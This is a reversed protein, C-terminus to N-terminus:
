KELPTLMIWGLPAYPQNQQFAVRRTKPFPANRRGLRYTQRIQNYEQDLDETLPNLVTKTEWGGGWGINLLFGGQSEVQELHKELAKCFQELPQLQYEQYFDRESEILTKSRMNCHAAFEHVLHGDNESFGLDRRVSDRLLHEDLTIEITTQVGAPLWEAFMKYEGGGEVKQALSRGRITYVWVLGVEVRAPDIPESDAIHLARLLDYNPDLDAGPKNKRPSKDGTLLPKELVRRAVYRKDHTRGSRQDRQTMQRAYRRSTNEDLDNVIAEL